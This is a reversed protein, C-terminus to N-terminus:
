LPIGTSELNLLRKKVPLGGAYGTLEGKSGIIRHCPIIVSMANAGNASAVARVASKNEIREALELYSLTNGYPLALLANWVKKQFDTGVMLLPLEFVRREAKLYEDFQKKAEDIVADDREIYDAEIGTQLRKDVTTRMRRYRYDMLCIQGDYSGFMLEGIKTKCYQIHISQM